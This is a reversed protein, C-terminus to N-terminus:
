RGDGLGPPGGLPYSALFSVLLVGFGAMTLLAVKRGRWGSILRAQLMAASLAWAALTAVEKSRWQWTPGHAAGSFAGTLLTISLAVFGLLVLRRNLEDLFQLPPLRSFLVGFTKGKMQRELLLYMLAVGAAVAFAAVGLLAVAVHATLLPTAIQGAPRGSEGVEPPLLLSTTLLALALPTLFVGLIARRYRLDLFLFIAILLFSLTSIGRDLAAPANSAMAGQSFLAGGHALLGLGTLVRGAVPLRRWQWILHAIYVAAAAAYAHCAFSLLAHTM